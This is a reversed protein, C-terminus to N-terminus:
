YSFITHCEDVKFFHFFLINRQETNRDNFPSHSFPLSAAFLFLILTLLSCPAWFAEFGWFTVAPPPVLFSLPASLFSLLTDPMRLVGTDSCGHLARHVLM